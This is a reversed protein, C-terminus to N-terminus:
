QCSYDVLTRLRNLEECKSDLSEIWREHWEDDMDDWCNCEQWESIAHVPEQHALKTESYPEFSSM